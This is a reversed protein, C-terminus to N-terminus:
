LLGEKKLQNVIGVSARSRDMTYIHVGPAGKELLERCQKTALDIGYDAVAKSDDPPLAALTERIRPTITAGCLNALFDMM